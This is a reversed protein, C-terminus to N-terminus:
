NEESLILNYRCFEDSNEPSEIREISVENISSYRSMLTGQIIGDDLEWLPLEESNGRNSPLHVKIHFIPDSDYNLEGLGAYEYWDMMESLFEVHGEIKRLSFALEEGIRNGVQRLLSGVDIGFTRLSEIGGTGLKKRADSIELGSAMFADLNFPADSEPLEESIQLVDRIRDLFSGGDLTLKLPNVIREETFRKSALEFPISEEWISDILNRQSEAFPGSEILLAADTKGRGVPNDETNLYQIAETSDVVTGQSELDDSHRVQISDDLESFFRITRRDLQAIVRVEVGRQAAKNVESLATSRCLHLIGYKGLTLILSFKSNHAMKEMKSFIHIREKLVAFKPEEDLIDQIEEQDYQLNGEKIDEFGQKIKALQEKRINILHELVNRLPPSSFKMPRDVTVTVLGTSQLRELSNYADLRTTGLEKALESAKLNTKTSLTIVVEAERESL